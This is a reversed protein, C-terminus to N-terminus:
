YNRPVAHWEYGFEELKGKEKLLMRFPIHHKLDLDLAKFAAAVSRYENTTGDEAIVIVNTRQKRKAAVESDQWSKAIPNVELLNRCRKEATARDQFKKISKGTRENYFAVLEATTAKTIDIM